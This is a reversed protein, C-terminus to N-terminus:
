DSALIHTEHEGLLAEEDEQSHPQEEEDEGCGTEVLMSITFEQGDQIESDLLSASGEDMM